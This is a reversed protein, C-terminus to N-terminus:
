AARTSESGTDERADSVRELWVERWWPFIGRPCLWRNNSYRGGCTVGQLIVAPTKLTKMLGTREDVFKEVRAHVRYIRGCYPVMEVDFSMGRHMNQANVTALIQDFSKVRVLEGPQLNLPTDPSQQGPRLSGPRRPYPVGGRRRQFLDYLWRAYRGLPEPRTLKQFAAFLLVFSLQRLSTNKSQYDEVYQRADWNKLPLSYNLLETAQCSYRPQGGKADQVRTAAMLDNITCTEQSADASPPLESPRGGPQGGVPKLWAEKWFILCEAQCGGYAKGDCRHGLHIGNPVRRNAYHGSVTDCTKHARKHVQFREGCQELMQPMLPLGELGGNKDLTALIEEKSRVEVWDGAYLTM